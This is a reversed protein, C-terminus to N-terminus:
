NVSDSTYLLVRSGPPVILNNDVISFLVLWNIDNKTIRNEPYLSIQELIEEMTDTNILGINFLHLLYNYNEPGLIEKEEENLFRFSKNSSEENELKSKEFTIKDILLSFAISLTQQDYKKNKMFHQNLEEISYGKGIGELIKTLIDVIKSNM